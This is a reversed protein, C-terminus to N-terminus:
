LCVLFHYHYPRVFMKKINVQQNLVKSIIGKHEEFIEDIDKSISDMAKGEKSLSEDFVLSDDIKAKMRSKRNANAPSVKTSVRCYGNDKKTCGCSLTEGM